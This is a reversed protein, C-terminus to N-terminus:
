LLFAHVLTIARKTVVDLIMWTAMATAKVSFFSNRLVFSMSVCSPLWVQLLKPTPLPLHQWQDQQCLLGQM